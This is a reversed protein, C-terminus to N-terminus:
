FCLAEPGRQQRKRFWAWICTGALTFVVTLVTLAIAVLQIFSRIGGFLFHSVLERYLEFELRDDRLAFVLFGVHWWIVYIVPSLAVVAVAIRMQTMRVDRM